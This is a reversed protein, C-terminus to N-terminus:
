AALGHGGDALEESDDYLHEPPFMGRRV